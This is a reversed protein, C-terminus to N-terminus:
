RLLDREKEAVRNLGTRRWHRSFRFLCTTAASRRGIESLCVSASPCSQSGWTVQLFFRENNCVTNLSFRFFFRNMMNNSIMSVFVDIKRAM